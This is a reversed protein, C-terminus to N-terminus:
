ATYGNPPPDDELLPERLEAIDTYTVTPNDMSDSESINANISQHFEKINDDMNLESVKKCLKTHRLQQFIHYTLIGIFTILAISVSTYEAAYQNGKAHNVHYTAAALITLNVMFSGELADLCWNRYVGGSFWAWMHLMGAGVLIALLNISFDQQPNFAFVLFLVFRLVLLLGPWYRHKAKYPAHYSDMFPKLRASNVWSFLRLHSIAQLWQGFLLLLTYPLFLFIFVLVATIFLPIHKGSPYDINADYLWVGRNYAPYELYTIYIVTILTRLIKAYSLLILTALVSVPNKGLLRAFSDSFRSIVIMFGVLMWLYLPFVFQLWTKTYADLGDYFCSDIGFDLNLWAIFVSLADTSEGPIFITRNVGVINAYFVLGSLTGTAVTLKCVLLLFVLAVGMVAFPILLALHNNTCKRCQSTGLVLSYGEKCAGCLLGSRNHACQLDTDNLPFNVTKSVCYDFPCLPHLILGHSQNDYGVWFQQGLNRTIKGSTVDCRNTYRALRLECVCSRTSESINFGPPCTQNITLSINLAYSFTSCPGDAYLHLISSNFLSFVTYDLTTCTNNAQQIYQSSLLTAGSDITGIIKAAVPGNRQGVAVVSVPFTEGPYVTRPVCSKHCNPLNNECPCIRFVDSSISSTTNEDEVHALMDFVEGSSYSELGTLRCNDIAGGYLVSGADDASNNKFVLQADLGTSLNQGPLQFFCDNPTCKEVQTCYIFPNSHDDVYIAGGLYAHNNEWYVTTNPLISIKSNRMLNVGGGHRNENSSTDNGNNIFNITREFILTSNSTSVAGGEIAINSDFNSTGSFSVLGSDSTYIAGGSYASNNIFSSTGNFSVTNSATNIAGGKASASNSSFSSIGDFNVSTNSTALIAGGGASAFGNNFYSTGTFSVSTNIEAYIGGGLFASNNNFNSTGSFSVKTNIEANIAGGEFASNNSFNSVGTFRLSTDTSAYIAGGSTFSPASNGIFNSNGSFSFVVSYRAYIAGGDSDASNNVFSSNANFNVSTNSAAYIAGGGDKASNNNFNSIGAFSLTNNTAFIAGGQRANNSDFNSAGKFSVLAGDSTYIAGGHNASNNNFNSAGNFSVSGNDSTCIAGGGIDALNSNFNSSENFSVSTNSEANIAGGFDASNNNFNSVGNFGLSTNTEAHIAGGFGSQASNGVFNSNGIFSSVSSYHTYIAGGDSVASNNSFSSTGNFRLTTKTAAYIVGGFHASNNSFNSVGTFKLFINTEAHIAGGHSFMSQASNGIFISCGIFSFVVNYQTYIAGGHDASNNIFSSTGNFILLANSEAYIAGGGYHASNNCFNSVGTFSLLSSHTVYIAGGGGLSTPASNVNGNFKNTGNFHLLSELAWIAGALGAYPNGSSSYSNELFVTNGIFTLNSNLATIGCGFGCVFSVCVCQNHTFKNGALKINTNFVALATCFNDHFSCNVLEAYQTSQFFLAANSALSALRNDVSSSRNCSTFALSSMKFDVLNKFSFGFQGNCVVTPLNGSSSEGRITLSTVDSVTINTDLAHDGPLFVM